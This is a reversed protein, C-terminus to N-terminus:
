SAELSRAFIVKDDGPAYFDRLTAEAVYGCREYFGRTPVYQPRNSTEIYVRRGGACRIANEAAEILTRGLGIGQARPAVAIWYLDYSGVTCAIEGYCVYGLLGDDADAFNFSYGSNPGKSLRDDILEIAVDIEAITFFGTGTLIRRIDDRDSPRPETRGLRYRPTPNMSLDHRDM